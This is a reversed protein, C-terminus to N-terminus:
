KQATYLMSQIFFSANLAEPMSTATLMADLSSKMNKPDKTKEYTLEPHEAAFALQADILWGLHLGAKAICETKNTTTMKNLCDLIANAHVNREDTM